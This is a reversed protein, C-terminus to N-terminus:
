GVTVLSRLAEVKAPGLGKVALLDDVSRFPGNEARHAVIAGATSPGVGPLADLQSATARNLDIPAPDIAGTAIPDSEVSPAREGRVPFWIRSGDTLPSALNLRDLDLGDGPGGAAELLDVVRAGPDLRYVGPARVAGSAHVVPGPISGVSSPTATASAPTPGAAAAPPLDAAPGGGGFAIASVVGISLGVAIVAAVALAVRSRPNLDALRRGISAVRLGIGDLGFGSRRPGDRHASSGARVRDLAEAARHDRGGPRDGSWVDM